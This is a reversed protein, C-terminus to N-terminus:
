EKSKEASERILNVIREQEQEPLEDRLRRSLTGEHIGMLRALEWQHIGVETMAIKIRANKLIVVKREESQCNNAVM